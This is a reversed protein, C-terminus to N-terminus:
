KPMETHLSSLNSRVRDLLSLLTRREAASLGKLLQAERDLAIELIADHMSWGKETLQILSSRGDKPNPTLRVLALNELHVVSRNAAAKDIGLIACTRQATAGPEIAFLTMVRWENIGIGFGDLYLKSASKSWKNTIQSLYAPLYDDLVLVRHEKKRM